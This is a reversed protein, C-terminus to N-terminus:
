LSAIEEALCPGMHLTTHRPVKGNLTPIQLYVSETDGLYMSTHGDRSVDATDAAFLLGSKGGAIYAGTSSDHPLAIYAFGELLM